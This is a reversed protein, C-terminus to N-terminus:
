FLFKSNRVLSFIEFRILKQIKLKKIFFKHNNPIQKWMSIRGKFDKFNNEFFKQTKLHTVQPNVQIKRVLKKTQDVLFWRTSTLDLGTYNINVVRPLNCTELRPLFIKIVTIMFIGSYEHIKVLKTFIKSGWFRSGYVFSMIFPCLKECCVRYKWLSAQQDHDVHSLWRDFFLNKIEIWWFTSTWRIIWWTIIGLWEFDNVIMWLSEWRENAWFCWQSWILRIPRNPDNEIFTRPHGFPVKPSYFVKKRFSLSRIALTM